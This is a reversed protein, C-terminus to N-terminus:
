VYLDQQEPRLLERASSEVATFSLGRVLVVARAEDAQGALLDAAAAVQDALATVTSELARGDLDSRGIQHFLAPLGSVGIAAGLTGLRFPRGHSDSIVVGLSVGTRAELDARIRRADADPDTPMLLAFPGSGAPAAPPGANSLDIGANASVFGLRHRVVLVGPAKRSIATSERLVLEVVRPDKQVKRGLARAESSPAVQSLDVFRGEARACVKSTVVLVDGQMLRLEMRALSAEILRALDDGHQVRPFGLLAQLSLTAAVAVPSSM